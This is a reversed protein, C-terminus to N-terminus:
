FNKGWLIIVKQKLGVTVVTFFIEHLPKLLFIFAIFQYLCSDFINKSYTPKKMRIVKGRERYIHIYTYIYQHHYGLTRKKFGVDDTIDFTSTLARWSQTAREM